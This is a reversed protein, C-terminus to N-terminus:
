SLWWPDDYGFADQVREPAGADRTRALAKIRDEVKAAMSLAYSPDEEGKAKCYAVTMWLAHDEWGNIGDFSDSANVLPNFAPYYHIEVTYAGGPNPVFRITNGLLRYYVPRNLNWSPYWTYRNREDEMYAKASIRQAIAGTGGILFCDVSILRYFDPAFSDLVYTDTSANTVMQASQRYFEQGGAEVLLDYTAKINSNLESTIDNDDIFATDRVIDARRRVTAIMNDLRVRAAM